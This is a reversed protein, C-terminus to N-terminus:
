GKVQSDELVRLQYDYSVQKQWETMSILRKNPRPLKMKSSLSSPDLDGNFRKLSGKKHLMNSKYDALSVGLQVLNPKLPRLIM